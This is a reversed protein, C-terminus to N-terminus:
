LISTHLSPVPNHATIINLALPISTIFCILLISALSMRMFKNHFVYTNNQNKRM